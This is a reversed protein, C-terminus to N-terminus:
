SNFSAIAKEFEKMNWDKDIDSRISLKKNSIIGDPSIFGSKTVFYILLM